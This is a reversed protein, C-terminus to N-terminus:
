KREGEGLYERAVERTAIKRSVQTAGDSDYEIGYLAL